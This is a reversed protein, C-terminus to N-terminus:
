LVQKDPLPVFILRDVRGPRLLAEDIMDPRNTAVVLLVDNNDVSKTETRLQSNLYWSIAFSM